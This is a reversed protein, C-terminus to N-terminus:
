SVEKHAEYWAKVAELDYFIQKESYPLPEPFDKHKKRFRWFKTRSSEPLILEQAQELTIALPSM